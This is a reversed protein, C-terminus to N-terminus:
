FCPPEGLPKANKLLLIDHERCKLIYALLKILILGKHRNLKLRILIHIYLM